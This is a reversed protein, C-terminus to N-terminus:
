FAAVFRKFYLSVAARTTGTVYDLLSEAESDTIEEFAENVTIGYHNAINTLIANKTKLDVAKLFLNTVKGNEMHQNKKHSQIPKKRKDREKV